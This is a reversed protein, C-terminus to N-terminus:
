VSPSAPNAPQARGRLLAAGLWTLAAQGAGVWVLIATLIWTAQLAWGPLDAQAAALRQRLTALDRQMRDVRDELQSSRVEFERALTVLKKAVENRTQRDKGPDALASDLAALFGAMRDLGETAVPGLDSLPVDGLAAAVGPTKRTLESARNILNVAQRSVELLSQVQHVQRRLDEAIARLQKQRAPDDPENALDLVIKAAPGVARRVARVAVGAGRARDEAVKLVENVGEIGELGAQLLPSRYLWVAVLGALSALLGLGGLVLASFGFLRRM